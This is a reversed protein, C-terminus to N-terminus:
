QTRYCTTIILTVMNRSMVKGLAFAMSNLKILVHTHSVPYLRLLVSLVVRAQQSRAGPLRGAQKGPWAEPFSRIIDNRKKM